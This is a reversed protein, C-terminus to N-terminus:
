AYLVEKYPMAKRKLESIRKRVGSISFNFEKAIEEYTMDDLIYMIAMTKTDAPVNAFIINLLEKHMIKKTENHPNKVFPLIHDISSEKKRKLSRVYDICCNTTMKYFFSVATKEHIVPKKEILKTFVTQLIDHAMNIDKLLFEARRLILAGYEKYYQEIQLSL